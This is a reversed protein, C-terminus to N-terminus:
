SRLSAVSANKDQKLHDSETLQFKTKAENKQGKKTLYLLRRRPPFTSIRRRQKQGSKWARHFSHFVRKPKQLKGRKGPPTMEVASQMEDNESRLSASRASTIAKSREEKEPEKKNEALIQSKRVFIKCGCRSPLVIGRNPSRLCGGKQERSRAAM